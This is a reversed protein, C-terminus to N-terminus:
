YYAQGTAGDPLAPISYRMELSALFFIQPVLTLAGEKSLRNSIGPKGPRGVRRLEQVEPGSDTVGNRNGGKASRRGALGAVREVVAGEVGEAGLDPTHHHVWPDPSCGRGTRKGSSDGGHPVLNWELPVGPQWRQGPVGSKGSERVQPVRQNSRDEHNGLGWEIGGGARRRCLLGVIFKRVRFDAAELPPKGPSSAGPGRYCPAYGSSDRRSGIAVQLRGRFGAPRNRKAMWGAQIM